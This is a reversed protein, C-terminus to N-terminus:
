SRLRVFLTLSCHYGNDSVPSDFHSHDNFETKLGRRRCYRYVIKMAGYLYNTPFKEADCKFVDVVWGCSDRKGVTEAQMIKVLKHKQEKAMRLKKPLEAIIKRAYLREENDMIIGGQEM